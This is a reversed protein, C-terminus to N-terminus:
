KKLVISVGLVTTLIYIVIVVISYYYLWNKIINLLMNEESNLCDCKNEDLQKTYRFIFYINFFGVAIFASILFNILPSKIFNSLRLGISNLRVLLLILPIVYLIAIMGLSVKSYNTIFRRKWGLTKSCECQKKDNQYILYIVSINVLIVLLILLIFIIM